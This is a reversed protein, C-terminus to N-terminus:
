MCEIGFLLCSFRKRIMALIHSAILVFFLESIEADDITSEIQLFTFSFINVRYRLAIKLIRIAASWNAWFLTVANLMWNMLSSNDNPTRLFDDCCYWNNFFISYLFSVPNFVYGLQSSKFWRLCNIFRFFYNVVLQNIVIYTTGSQM